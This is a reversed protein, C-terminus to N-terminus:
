QEGIKVPRNERASKYVAEIMRNAELGDQGNGLPQRNERIASLFEAWEAEWSIDPGNFEIVEEDPAGGAYTPAVNNTILQYAIEQGNPSRKENKKDVLLRYSNELKRKGIRLTETGYSGGLGDVILYGAEGFVEFTFRNKWQTWSTHMTAIKGGSTRFLAFANGEVEMNWYCTCTPIPTVDEYTM